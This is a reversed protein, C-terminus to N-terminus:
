FLCISAFTLAPSCCSATLNSLQWNMTLALDCFGTPFHTEALFYKSLIPTLTFQVLLQAVRINILFIGSLLSNSSCSGFLLPSLFHIPLLSMFSLKETLLLPFIYCVSKSVFNLSVHVHTHLLHHCLFLIFLVTLNYVPSSTSETASTTLNADNYFLQLIEFWEKGHSNWPPAYTEGYLFWM